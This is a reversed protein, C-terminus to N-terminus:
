IEPNHHSVGILNRTMIQQFKDEISISM